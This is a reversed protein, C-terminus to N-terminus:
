FLIQCDMINELFVCIKKGFAQTIIERPENEIKNISLSDRKELVFLIKLLYNYNNLLFTRLM